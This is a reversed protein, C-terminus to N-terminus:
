SLWTQRVRVVQWRGNRKALVLEAGHSCLGLCVFNVQLTAHDGTVRLRGFELHTRGEGNPRREAAYHARAVALIAARVATDVNSGAPARMPDLSASRATPASGATPEAGSRHTLGIAAGWSVVIVLLGAIVLRRARRRQAASVVRLVLLEDVPQETDDM